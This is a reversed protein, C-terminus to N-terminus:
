CGRKDFQTVLKRVDVKNLARRAVFYIEGFFQGAFPNNNTHRVHAIDLGLVAESQIHVQLRALQKRERM